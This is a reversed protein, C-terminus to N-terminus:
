CDRQSVALATRFQAMARRVWIATEPLKWPTRPLETSVRRRKRDGLFNSRIEGHQTGRVCEGEATQESGTRLNSIGLDERPDAPATPSSRSASM